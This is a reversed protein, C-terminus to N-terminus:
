QAYFTPQPLYIASLAFKCQSPVLKDALKQVVVALVTFNFRFTRSAQSPIFQVDVISDSDTLTPTQSPRDKLLFIFTPYSLDANEGNFEM